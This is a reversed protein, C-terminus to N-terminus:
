MYRLWLGLGHHLAIGDRTKLSRAVDLPNRFCFIIRSSATCGDIVSRIVPFSRCFRPDKLVALSADGYHGQIADKLKARAQKIAEMELSHRSLGRLDYWASGLARLMEEDIRKISKSEFHGKVNFPHERVLDDPLTAGLIGLTGAVASTGSRHMGLVVLFTRSNESM